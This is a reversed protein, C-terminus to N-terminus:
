SKLHCLILLFFFVGGRWEGGEERGVEEREGKEKRREGGYGGFNRGNGAEEGGGSCSGESKGSKLDLNVKMRRLLLSPPSIRPPPPLLVVLIFSFFHNTQQNIVSCYFWVGCSDGLLYTWRLM